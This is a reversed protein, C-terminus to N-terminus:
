QSARLYSEDTLSSNLYERLTREGLLNQGTLQRLAERRFFQDSELARIQSHTTEIRESLVIEQNALSQLSEELKHSQERRPMHVSSIITMSLGLVLVIFQPTSLSFLDRLLERTSSFWNGLTTRIM